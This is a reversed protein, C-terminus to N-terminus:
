KPDRKLEDIHVIGRRTGGFNEEYIKPYKPRAPVQTETKGSEQSASPPVATAAPKPTTETIGLESPDVVRKINGAADLEHIVIKTKVTEGQPKRAEPPKHDDNDRNNTM